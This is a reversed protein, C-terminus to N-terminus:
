SALNRYRVRNLGRRLDDEFALGGRAKRRFWRERDSPQVPSRRLRYPDAGVHNARTGALVASRFRRQVEAAAAPSGAVAKPYAFHTPDVGARERLLEVSRDLEHAIQDAPLRDLLSHGHTHSGITVLSSGALQRVGAWDLPLGGGPFSRREEIFATAVYFTAPVGHRELAPLVHDVWDTTGDDLTVVVGPRVTATGALETLAVDLSIVRQTATLWRLQADFAEPSLDMQGGDGSGVRHYILITIGPRPRVALDVTAAVGKLTARAIPAIRRQLSV